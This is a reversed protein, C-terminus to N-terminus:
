PVRKLTVDDAESSLEILDNITLAELNKLLSIFQKYGIHENIDAAIFEAPANVGDTLDWVEEIKDLRMTVHQYGRRKLENVLENKGIRANVHFNL